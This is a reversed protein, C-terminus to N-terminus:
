IRARATMGSVKRLSLSESTLMWSSPLELVVKGQAKWSNHMLTVLQLCLLAQDVQDVLYDQNLKEM